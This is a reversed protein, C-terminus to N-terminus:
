DRPTPSVQWKHFLQSLDPTWVNASLLPCVAPQGTVFSHGSPGTDITIVDWGYVCASLEMVSLASM